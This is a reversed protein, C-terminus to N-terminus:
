RPSGRQEPYKQAIGAPHQMGAIPGALQHAVHDTDGAIMKDAGVRFGVGYDFAEDAGAKSARVARCRCNGLGFGAPSDAQADDIHRLPLAIADLKQLADHGNGLNSADAKDPPDLGPM